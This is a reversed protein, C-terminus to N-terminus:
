TNFKTKISDLVNLEVYKNTDVETFELLWEFSEIYWIMDNIFSEPDIKKWRVIIQSTSNSIFTLFSKPLFLWLFKLKKSPELLEYWSKASEDIIIKLINWDNAEKIRKAIDEINAFYDTTTESILNSIKSYWDSISNWLDWLNSSSEKIVGIANWLYNVVWQEETNVLWQDVLENLLMKGYVNYTYPTNMTKLNYTKILKNFIIKEDDSDLNNWINSLTELLKESLLQNVSNNEYSVVKNNEIYSLKNYFNTSEFSPNEWAM